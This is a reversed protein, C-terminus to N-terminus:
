ARFSDKWSRLSAFREVRGADAAIRGALGDIVGRSDIRLFPNAAKEEGLRAPLTPRGAERQARAAATRTALAANGADVAAAFRANALTYEHACYVLTDDPLAVIRDLSALMQAPTGEFLRGCGLSFLTDGCFLRGPAHFAIHSLTHGPTAIVDLTLGLSEIVVSDGEGVRRDAGDIRPDDPAVVTAGTVEILRAVGGIHDAHHHTVLITDLQLGRERLASLVPQAAGPDVVAACGDRHLLWFYNDEFASIPEVELQPM